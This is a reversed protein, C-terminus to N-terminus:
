PRKNCIEATSYKVCYFNVRFLISHQREYGLMNKYKSTRLHDGVNFKTDKDSNEVNFDICENTNFDILKM